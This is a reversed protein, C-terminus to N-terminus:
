AGAKKAQKFADTGRDVADQAQEKATEAVKQSHQAFDKTRNRLQDVSDDIADTINDRLENGAKPALMLTAVAGIGVGILLALITGAKHDKAM